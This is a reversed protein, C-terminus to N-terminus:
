GSKPMSPDAGPDAGPDTVSLRHRNSDLTANGIGRVKVLDEITVFPGNEDRYAVIARAKKIGVGTMAAAFEEATATNIDIAEEAAVPITALLCALLVGPLVLRRLSRALTRPRNVPLSM